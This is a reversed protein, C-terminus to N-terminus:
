LSTGPINLGSSLGKGSSSAGAPKNNKTSLPIRLAGTGTNAQQVQTRASKRRKVIPEAEGAAATEVPPPAQVQAKDQVIPAPAPIPAPKPPPEPAVSPPPPPAAPTPMPQPPPLPKPPPLPEPEPIKPASVSPASCM